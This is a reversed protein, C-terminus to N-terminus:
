VRKPLRNLYGTRLVDHLYHRVGYAKFFNGKSNTGIKARHWVDPNGCNSRYLIYPEGDIFQTDSTEIGGWIGVPIVGRIAIADKSELAKAARTRKETFTFM